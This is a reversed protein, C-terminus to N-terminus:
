PAKAKWSRPSFPRGLAPAGEQPDGAVAQDLGQAEALSSSYRRDRAARAPPWRRSGAAAPPAAPTRPTSGPRGAATRPRRACRGPRPRGRCGSEAPRAPPAPPSRPRATAARAGRAAAGAGALRLGQAEEARAHVADDQLAPLVAAGEQGLDPLLEGVGPVEQVTELVLGPEPGAEPRRLDPEAAIRDQLPLLLLLPRGRAQGRRAGDAPPLLDARARSPHEVEHDPAREAGASGRGAATFAPLAAAPQFRPAPGRQVEATAASRRNEPAQREPRRRTIGPPRSTGGALLWSVYCLESLFMHVASPADEMRARWEELRHTLKECGEAPRIGTAPRSSWSCSAAPGSRAGNPRIWASSLAADSGGHPQCQQRPSSM